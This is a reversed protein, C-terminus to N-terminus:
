KAFGILIPEFEPLATRLEKSFLILDPLPCCTDNLNDDSSNSNRPKGCLDQDRTYCVTQTLITLLDYALPRAAIAYKPYQRQRAADIGIFDM